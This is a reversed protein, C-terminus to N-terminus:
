GDGAGVALCGGFLEDRSHQGLFVVDDVRHTVEVVVDAHGDGQQADLGLGLDGDHLHTGVMWTFNVEEALDGVRIIAEDGVDSFCMQFAETAKLADDLGLGFQISMDLRMALGYKDIM